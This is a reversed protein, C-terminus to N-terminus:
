EAETDYYERHSTKFGLLRKGVVVGCFWVLSNMLPDAVWRPLIPIGLVTGSEYLFLAIQFPNPDLSKTQLASSGDIGGNTPPNNCDEAYSYANRFFAEDSPLSPNIRVDMVLPTSESMNEFRHLEKPAITISSQPALETWDSGRCVRMRGSIVTFTETQSPHFHLPPEFFSGNEFFSKPAKHPPITARMLRVDEAPYFALSGAGNEGFIVQQHCTRTRLTDRRLFRFM